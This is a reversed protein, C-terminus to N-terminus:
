AASLHAGAIAKPSISTPSPIMHLPRCVAFVALVYSLIGSVGVKWGTLTFSSLSDIIIVQREIRSSSADFPAAPTWRQYSDQSSILICYEENDSVCGSFCSFLLTFEHSSLCAFVFQAFLSHCWRLHHLSSRFLHLRAQAIHLAQTRFAIGVLAPTLASPGIRLPLVDLDPM